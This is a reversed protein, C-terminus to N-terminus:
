RVHREERHDYKFKKLGSRILFHIRQYLLSTASSRVTMGMRRKIAGMFMFMQWSNQDLGGWIIEANVTNGAKKVSAASKASKAMVTPPVMAWAPAVVAAALLTIYIRRM